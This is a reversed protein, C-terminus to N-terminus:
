IEGDINEHGPSLTLEYIDLGDEKNPAIWTEHFVGKYVQIADRPIGDIDKQIEDLSDSPLLLSGVPEKQFEISQAYIHSNQLERSAPCSHNNANYVRILEDLTPAQTITGGMCGSATGAPSHDLGVAHGMEHCPLYNKFSASAGGEGRTNIKVTAATVGGHTGAKSRKTTIGSWTTAGYDADCVRIKGPEFPCNQRTTADNSGAVRNLTIWPNYTTTGVKFGKSWNSIASNVGARWVSNSRLSDIVEVKYSGGTHYWHQDAASALPALSYILLAASIKALNKIKKAANYSLNTDANEFGHTTKETKM